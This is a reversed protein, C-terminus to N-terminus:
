GVVISVLQRGLGRLALSLPLNQHPKKATVQEAGIGAGFLILSRADKATRGHPV